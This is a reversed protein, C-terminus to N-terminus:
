SAASAATNASIAAIMAAEQALIINTISTSLLATLVSNKAYGDAVLAVALLLLEPKTVSFAGLGKQKRLYAQVECIDRILIDMEVPLLALVGLSALTFSRDLRIKQARLADRLTLVKEVASDDSASLVLVQALAQVSNKALFEGKLQLYLKEMRETGVAVDLDSLGLMAAYIYDDQGTLFFHQTKMADYFARSRNVVNQYDGSEAQRAIELAALALFDSTRFKADKLLGYIQLTEGLLAQPEPSFSLLTAVCLTMHGRFPSFVGTDEKILDHCCRIAERDMARGEQAYLLAALRRTIAYHRRLGKRVTQANSVFLDLKGQMAYEM